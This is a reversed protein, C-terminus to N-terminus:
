FRRVQLFGPQKSLQGILVDAEAQRQKPSMKKIRLEERIQEKHAPLSHNLIEVPCGTLPAFYFRRSAPHAVLLASVNKQLENQLSQVTNKKPARPKCLDTFSTSRCAVCWRLSWAWSAPNTTIGKAKAQKICEAVAVPYTANIQAFPHTLKLEM